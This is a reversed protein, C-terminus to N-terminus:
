SFKAVKKDFDFWVDCNIAALIFWSVPTFSLFSPILPYYNIIIFPNHPLSLKLINITTLNISLSFNYPNSPSSHHPPPKPFSTFHSQTRIMHSSAISTFDKLVPILVLKLKSWCCQSYGNMKKLLAVFLKMFYHIHAKM